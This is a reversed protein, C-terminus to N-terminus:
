QVKREEGSVSTGTATFAGSMNTIGVNADRVWVEVRFEASM